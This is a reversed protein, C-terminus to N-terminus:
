DIGLSELVPASINLLKEDADAVKEESKKPHLVSKSPRVSIPKTKSISSQELFFPDM